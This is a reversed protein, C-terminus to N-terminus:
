RPDPHPRQSAPDDNEGINHDPGIMDDNPWAWPFPQGPDARWFTEIEGKDELYASILEAHRREYYSRVAQQGSLLEDEGAEPESFDGLTYLFVEVDQIEGMATQYDHMRKFNSEPFGPLLPNIIEIMYRFKKFAVRTHHISAPLTPDIRRYRQLVTLFAEDLAQFLLGNLAEGSSIERWVQRVKELRRAISSLKLAEVLEEAERLLRRERKLLVKQFPKLEPLIGLTESIEALMVQTDRLDDFDDLQSKLAKRIKQLRPHPALARLMEILALLRRAAVRLDHVAEESFERRCAKLQERYKEWRAELADLLLIQADM